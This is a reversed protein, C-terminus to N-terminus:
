WHPDGSAREFAFTCRVTLTGISPGTHLCDNLSLARKRLKAFADFVIRMETTEANERLVPHHHPLYHVRESPSSKDVREVIGKRIQEQIIDDYARLKEPDKRLKKLQGHLRSQSLKYNTPLHYNGSKWNLKVSYRQGNFCISDELDEYVDDTESIGLTEYDCLKKLNEEMTDGKRNEIVLNVHANTECGHSEGLKGALTWGFITEIAVPENPNRQSLAWNPDALTPGNWDVYASGTYGNKVRRSVM